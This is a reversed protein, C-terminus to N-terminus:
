EINAMVESIVSFKAAQWRRYDLVFKASIWCDGSKQSTEWGLLGQKQAAALLRGAHSRSIVFEAATLRASVEGVWTREELFPALPVRAM